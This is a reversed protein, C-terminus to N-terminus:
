SQTVVAVHRQWCAKAFSALRIAKQQFFAGISLGSFSLCSYRERVCEYKPCFFVMHDLNEINEAGDTTCFNCIREEREMKEWRGTEERLWHAGMRLQALPRRMDRRFVESLYEAEGCENEPFGGRVEHVYHHIKTGTIGRVRELYKDEWRQCITGVNLEVPIELDVDVGIQQLATAVQGAWPRRNINSTGIADRALASSVVLSRKLLSGEPAKVLANYFKALRKIWRLALPRRGAEALVVVNATSQRVGFMGRLFDLQVKESPNDFPDVKCLFETAWIEAGYSLVPEVMVDFLRCAMDPSNLKLASMRSRTSHMAKRGSIKRRPAAFGGFSTSSHMAVGLYTFNDLV